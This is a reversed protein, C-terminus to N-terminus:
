IALSIYFQESQRRNGEGSNPGTYLLFVHPRLPFWTLPGGNARRAPESTAVSLGVTVSQASFDEEFLEPSGFSRSFSPASLSGSWIKMVLHSLLLLSVKGM